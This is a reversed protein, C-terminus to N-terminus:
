IKQSQSYSSEAKINNKSFNKIEKSDSSVVDVSVVEGHMKIHHQFYRFVKQKAEPIEDFPPLFHGLPIGEENESVQAISSSTNDKYKVLISYKFMLNKMNRKQM